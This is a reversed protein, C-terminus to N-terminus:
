SEHGHRLAGWAVPRRLVLVIASIKVASFRASLSHNELSM